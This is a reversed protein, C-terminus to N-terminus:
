IDLKPSRYDLTYDQVFISQNFTKIIRITQRLPGCESWEISQLSFGDVPCDQYDPAINWADWYQGKDSFAQLENGPARFTEQGSPKHILSAITGTTPDIRVKLIANELIWDV